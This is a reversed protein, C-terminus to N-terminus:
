ISLGYQGPSAELIGSQVFILVQACFSMSALMKHLKFSSGSHMYIFLIIFLSCPCSPFLSSAQHGFYWFLQFNGSCSWSCEMACLQLFTKFLKSTTQLFRSAKTFTKVSFKHHVMFAIKNDTSSLSVLWFSFNGVAPCDQAWVLGLIQRIVRVHPLFVIDPEASHKSSDTSYIACYNM